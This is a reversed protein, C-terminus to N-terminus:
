EMNNNSNDEEDRSTRFLRFDIPSHPAKCTPPPKPNHSRRSPLSLM